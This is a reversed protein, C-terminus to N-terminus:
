LDGRACRARLARVKVLVEEALPGPEQALKCALEIAEVLMFVALVSVRRDDREKVWQDPRMSTNYRHRAQSRAYHLINEALRDADADNSM